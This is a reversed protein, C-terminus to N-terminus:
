TRLEKIIKDVRDVLDEIAKAAESDPYAELLPKRMCASMPITSDYPVEGIIELDNERAFEEIGRFDPNISAKNVVIYSKVGFHSALRYARAMDSVSAKTPEAVLIAMSAGSMSAIAECGIGAASDIFTIGDNEQTIERAWKREEAVLKGSNPRGVDLRASILPFGYRTTTRRIVGSKVESYTIADVPCVYGCARCGECLYDRIMPIDQGDSPVIADYICSKVCVNCKICKEPSITAIEGGTYDEVHEWSDVGFILHLNPASADADLGVVNYRERLRYLLSSTILSKGVGGKGSAIVIDMPM